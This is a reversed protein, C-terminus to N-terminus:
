NGNDVPSLIPQNQASGCGFRVGAAGLGEADDSAEGTLLCNSDATISFVALRKITAQSDSANRTRRWDREQREKYHMWRYYGSRRGPWTGWNVRRRAETTM